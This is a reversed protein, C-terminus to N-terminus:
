LLNRIMQEAEEGYKDIIHQSTSTGDPPKLWEDFRIVDFGLLNDTWFKGMSIGFVQIFHDWYKTRAEAKAACHEVFKDTM